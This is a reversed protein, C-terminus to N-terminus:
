VEAAVQVDPWVTAASFLPLRPVQVVVGVAGLLTNVYVAGASAFKGFGTGVSVNVAVASASWLFVPVATTASSVPMRTATVGVVAVTGTPNLGACPTDKVAESSFVGGMLTDQFTICGTAPDLVLMQLLKGEIVLPPAHPVAVGLPALQLGLQPDIVADPGTAVKVAGLVIGVLVEGTWVLPDVAVVAAV